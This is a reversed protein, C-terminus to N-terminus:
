RSGRQPSPRVCATAAAHRHRNSPETGTLRLELDITPADHPADALEFGLQLVEGRSAVQLALAAAAAAEGRDRDDPVGVGALRRQQVVEGVRAHQDLVPKNAVSSGVVRPKRQRAALRHEDGVRDAEDAVQWVAQDLRELARQLDGAAAVVQDM